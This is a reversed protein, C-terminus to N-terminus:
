QLGVAETAGRGNRLTSYYPRTVPIERRHVIPAQPRLGAKSYDSVFREHVALADAVWALAGLDIFVSIDRAIMAKVVSPGRWLSFQYTSLLAQQRKSLSSGM